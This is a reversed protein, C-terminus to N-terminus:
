TQFSYLSGKKIILSKLQNEHEAKGKQFDFLSVHWLQFVNIVHREWKKKSILCNPRSFEKPCNQIIALLSYSSHTESDSHQLWVRTHVLLWDLWAGKRSDEKERLTHPTQTRSINSRKAGRCDEARQQTLVSADAQLRVAAETRGGESPLEALDGHGGGQGCGVTGGRGRGGGILHDFRRQQRGHRGILLQGLWLEEHRQSLKLLWHSHSSTFLSKKEATMYLFITQTSPVALLDCSQMQGLSSNLEEGLALRDDKGGVQEM